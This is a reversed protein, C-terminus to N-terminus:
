AHMGDYPTVTLAGVDVQDLCRVNISVMPGQPGTGRGFSAVGCTSCFLHHINKKGFQYDTLSSEGSILKFQQPPVFTLIWARKACISCNCSMLPVLNSTVEFRVAGCHCGGQYSKPESM